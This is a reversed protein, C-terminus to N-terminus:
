IFKSPNLSGTCRSKIFSDCMGTYECLIHALFGTVFLTKEMVYDDNWKKCMAPVDVKAIGTWKVIRSALWGVLVVILGTVIAAFLVSM